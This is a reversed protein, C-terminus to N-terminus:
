MWLVLICGDTLIVWELYFITCVRLFFNVLQKMAEPGHEQYKSIWDGAVLSLNDADMVADLM